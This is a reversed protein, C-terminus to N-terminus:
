CIANVHMTITPPKAKRQSPKGKPVVGEGSYYVLMISASIYRVLSRGM